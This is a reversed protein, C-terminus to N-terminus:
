KRRMTAKYFQEFFARLSFNFESGDIMAFKVAYNDCDLQVDTFICDLSVTPGLSGDSMRTQFALLKPDFSIGTWTPAREGPEGREGRAGRAGRKGVSSLLQWGGGPLAGPSDQRAVWSSGNYAVVDLCNYITDPDWTGRVNLAGPMGKGRLVDIAGRAEALKIELAEFKDAWEGRTLALAEIVSETMEARLEALHYQLWNNWEAWPDHEEAPLSHSNGNEEIHTV